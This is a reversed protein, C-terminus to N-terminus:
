NDLDIDQTNNLDVTSPLNIFSNLNIMQSYLNAVPTNKNTAIETIKLAISFYHEPGILSPFNNKALCRVAIGVSWQM